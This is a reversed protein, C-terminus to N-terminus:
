SQYIPGTKLIQSPLTDGLVEKYQNRIMNIILESGSKGSLKSLAALKERDSETGYAIIGKHRTM